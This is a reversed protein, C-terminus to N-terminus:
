ALGGTILVGLPLGRARSPVPARYYATGPERCAACLPGGVADTERGNLIEEGCHVCDVRVGRQGLLVDLDVNLTVRTIDLLERAPMAQYGLMQQGYGRTEEIPAYRAARKRIDARPAIRITARSCLDVATLAVRGYDVVRLTRHGVTCGTAATVGDVFCGDTEVFILLWRDSATPWAQLYEMAALGMRVGLVQRPCLRAHEAACAALAEQLRETERM